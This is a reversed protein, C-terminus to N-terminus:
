IEKGPHGPPNSLFWMKMAPLNLANTMIHFVIKKREVFSYVASNVVVACALINDSFVNFHYIDPDYLKRKNPLKQEEPSRAFYDVTLRMSLCYLGKPATRSVLQALYAVKNKNAWFQEEANNTMVRLKTAMAPCDSYIQSAKYLTGEMSKIRQVVSKSLESDKTAEGLTQEIWKIWLKLEKVMHSNNNPPAFNLYAKVRILQDKMDRVKEDNISKNQSNRNADREELICKQTSDDREWELLIRFSMFGNRELIDLSQRDDAKLLYDTDGDKYVVLTPEILGDGLDMSLNLYKGGNVGYLLESLRRTGLVGGIAEVRRDVEIMYYVVQLRRGGTSCEFAVDFGVYLGQTVNLGYCHSGIICSSSAEFLFGRSKVFRSSSCVPAVNNNTRATVTVSGVVVVNDSYLVLGLMESTLVLELNSA